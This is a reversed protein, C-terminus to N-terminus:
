RISFSYTVYHSRNNDHTVSTEPPFNIPKSFVTASFHSAKKISGRGRTVIISISDKAVKPGSFIMFVSIKYDSYTIRPDSLRYDAFEASRIYPESGQDM